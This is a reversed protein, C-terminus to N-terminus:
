DTELKHVLVARYGGDDRVHDAADQGEFGVTVAIIQIGYGETRSEVSSDPSPDGM